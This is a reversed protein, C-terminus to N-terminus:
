QNRQKNVQELQLILKKNQEVLETEEKEYITHMEAVTKNEKLPPDEIKKLSKPDESLKNNGEKPQNHHEELNRKKQTISSTVLQLRNNSETFQTTIKELELKKAKLDHSLRENEDNIIKLKQEMEDVLKAKKKIDETKEQENILRLTMNSINDELAQKEELFQEQKQRILEEYAEMKSALDEQSGKRLSKREKFLLANAEESLQTKIKLKKVETQLRENEGEIESKEMDVVELQKKLGQIAGHLMEIDKQADKSSGLEKILNENEIKLEALKKKLKSLELTEDSEKVANIFSTARQYDEQNYEESGTLLPVLNSTVLAKTKNKVSFIEITKIKIGLLTDELHQKIADNTIKEVQFYSKFLVEIKSKSVM